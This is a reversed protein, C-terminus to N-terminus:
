QLRALRTIVSNGTNRRLPRSVGTGDGRGDARLRGSNAGEAPPQPHPRDGDPCLRRPDPSEDRLSNGQHVDGAGRAPSRWDNAEGVRAVGRYYSSAGRISIPDQAFARALGGDVEFIDALRQPPQGALDRAQAVVHMHQGGEDLTEVVRMAPHQFLDPGHMPLM